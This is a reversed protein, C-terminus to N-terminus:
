SLNKQKIIEDTLATEPWTVKNEVNSADEKESVNNLISAVVEKEVAEAEAAEAAESAEAAAEVEVTAMMTEKVMTRRTTEAAEEESVITMEAAEAVEEAVEEIM